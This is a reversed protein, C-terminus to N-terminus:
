RILTWTSCRCHQQRSRCCHQQQGQQQRSWSNSLSLADWLIPRATSRWLPSVAPAPRTCVVCLSIACTIRPRDAHRYFGGQVGAVAVSWSASDRFCPTAAKSTDHIPHPLQPTCHIQETHPDKGTVYKSGSHHELAWFTIATAHTSHSQTM